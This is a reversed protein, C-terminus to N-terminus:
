AQPPSLSPQALPVKMLCQETLTLGQPLHNDIQAEHELQM